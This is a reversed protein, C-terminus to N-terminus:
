ADVESPLKGSRIGHRRRDMGARMAALGAKGHMTRMEMLKRAQADTTRVPGHDAPAASM